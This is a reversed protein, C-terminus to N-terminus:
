ATALFHRLIFNVKFFVLSFPKITNIDIANPIHGYHTLQYIVSVSGDSLIQFNIHAPCCARPKMM